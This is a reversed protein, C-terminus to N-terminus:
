FEVGLFEINLLEIGPLARKINKLLINTFYKRNGGKLGIEDYRVLITRKEIM